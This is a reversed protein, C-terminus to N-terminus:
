YDLPTDQPLTQPQEQAAAVWHDEMTEAIARTEEVADASIPADAPLWKLTDKTFVYTGEDCEQWLMGAKADIHYKVFIDKFLETAEWYAARTNEDYQLEEMADLMESYYICQKDKGANFREWLEDGIEQYDAYMSRLNSVKDALVLQKVELNSNAVEEIARRKRDLWEGEKSHTHAAVLNVVHPGFKQLVEDITARKDEVVDHLIGAIILDDDEPRMETLIQAVEMPHCIYDIETGKRPQGKHRETAFMIAEHLKMRITM